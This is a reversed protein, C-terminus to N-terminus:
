DRTCYSVHYPGPAFVPRGCQPANIVALDKEIKYEQVLRTDIVVYLPSGRVTLMRSAGGEFRASRSSFYELAGIHAWWTPAYAVNAGEPLPRGRTAGMGTVYDGLSPRRGGWSGAACRVNAAEERTSLPPGLSRCAIGSAGGGDILWPGAPSCLRSPPKKARRVWAYTLLRGWRDRHALDLELRTAQRAVLRRNIARAQEGGHQWGRVAHPIEAANVGIDRVQELHKGIQVHITEGDVVWVVRGRM